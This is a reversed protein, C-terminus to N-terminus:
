ESLNELIAICEGNGSKKFEVLRSFERECFYNVFKHMSTPSFTHYHIDYLKNIYNVHASILDDYRTKTESVSEKLGWMLEACYEEIEQETRLTTMQNLRRINADSIRLFERLHSETVAFIQSVELSSFLHYDNLFHDLTTLPRGNDYCKEAIPVAFYLRGKYRLKLKWKLLTGYPDPSHELAHNAIIFDVSRDPINNLIFGDDILHTNVILHSDIEPYREQNEIKSKYDVYRVTAGRPIKVPQHLAGIELGDGTLWKKALLDRHSVMDPKRWCDDLIMHNHKRL